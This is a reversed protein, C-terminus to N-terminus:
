IWFNVYACLLLFLGSPDILNAKKLSNPSTLKRFKREEPPITQLARVCDEEEEFFLEPDEAHKGRLKKWTTPLPYTDPVKM